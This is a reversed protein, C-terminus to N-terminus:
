NTINTPINPVNAFSQFNLTIPFFHIAAPKSYYIFYKIRMARIKVHKPALESEFAVM